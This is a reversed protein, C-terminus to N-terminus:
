GVLKRSTERARWNERKKQIVSELERQLEPSNRFEDDIAQLREATMLGGLLQLKHPTGDPNFELEIANYMEIIMRADVPKGKASVKQSDPIDRDLQEMTMGIQQRVMDLIMQDHLEIVKQITLNECDEAKIEIQSSLVKTGSDTASKDARVIRMGKGEHLMRTQVERLPSIMRSKRRMYTRFMKEFLQKTEPFDPLM